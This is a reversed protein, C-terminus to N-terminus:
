WKKLGGSQGELPQAPMGRVWPVQSREKSRVKGDKRERAGWLGPLM